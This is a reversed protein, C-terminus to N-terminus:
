FLVKQFKKVVKSLKKAKAEKIKELVYAALPFYCVRLFYILTKQWIKYQGLENIEEL